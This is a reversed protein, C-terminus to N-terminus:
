TALLQTRPQGPKQAIGAAIIIIDAHRAQDATAQQPSPTSSVVLADSLDLIEGRCRVTDIDVLLIETDTNRLMLTYAITSGVNGAGVIAIKLQKYYKREKKVINHYKSIYPFLFPKLLM